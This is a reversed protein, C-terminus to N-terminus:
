PAKADKSPLPRPEVALAPMEEPQEVEPGPPLEGQRNRAAQILLISQMTRDGNPEPQTFLFTGLSRSQRPRCGVVLTEGPKLDVTFGLDRLIEEQQGDRIAFSRQAYPSNNELPAITRRTEGHHVEPVIRLSVATSGSHSPTVVLRGQADQYDRGDVNGQRNLLLTVTESRSGVGIPSHEGEPLVVHVWQTEMQPPKATFAERLDTPLNGTIVGARIGNAELASHADLPIPLEDAVAWASADVMADGIPRTIIATELKCYKPELVHGPRVANTNFVAPAVPNGRDKLSACGLNCGALAMTALALGLVKRSM